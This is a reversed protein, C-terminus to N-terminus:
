HEVEASHCSFALYPLFIIKRTVLKLIYEIKLEFAVLLLKGPM